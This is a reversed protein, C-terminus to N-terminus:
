RVDEHVPLANKEPEHPSHTAAIDEPLRRALEPPLAGLTWTHSIAPRPVRKGVRRSSRFLWCLWLVLFLACSLIQSCLFILGILRVVHRLGQRDSGARNAIHPVLRPLAGPPRMGQLNIEPHRTERSSHRPPSARITSDIVPMRVMLKADANGVICLKVTLYHITATIAAIRTMGKGATCLGLAIARSRRGRAFQRLMATPMAKPRGAHHPTPRNAQNRSQGIM